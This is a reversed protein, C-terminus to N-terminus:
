GHRAAILEAARASDGFELRQVPVARAIDELRRVLRQAGLHPAFGHPLLARVAASAGLPTLTEAAGGRALVIVAALPAREGLGAAEGARPRLYVADEGWWAAREEVFRALDAGAGPPLPWRMKPALGLAVAEACGALAIRDDGFLRRGAAALMLALSSKGAGSDGVLAVVGRALRVAGGHLCILDDDRAVHVAVAAGALANAADLVGTCTIMGAAPGHIRITFEEGQADIEIDPPADGRSEALPWRDLFLPLHEFPRTDGAVTVPGLQWASAITPAPRARPM